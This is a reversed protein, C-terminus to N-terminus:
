LKAAMADANGTLQDLTFRKRVIQRVTFDFIGRKLLV